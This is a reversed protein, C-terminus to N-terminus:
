QLIDSLLHNPLRSTTYRTVTTMGLYFRIRGAELARQLDLSSVTQHNQFLRQKMQNTDYFNLECLHDV